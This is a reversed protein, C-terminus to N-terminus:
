VSDIFGALTGNFNDAQERMSFHGARNLIHMYTRRETSAMLDYLRQGQELLATPDNYGWMILTPRGMGQDRLRGFTDSRDKALGPLFQSTKLKQKEMKDVAQRHKAQKGIDMLVDLWDDDIHEHGYSYRELVWRQCERSLAPHPPNAHVVENMGVGPALSNSDVCTLSDVLDPQELALRATAYGGRSHGVLHVNALNLKRITAGLHRVVAQMTYDSDKKPNGTYGQGLKDIAVVHYKRALFDINRSWTWSNGSAESSGFNGGHILVVNKGRGKEYYHTKIGDVTVFKGKKPMVM